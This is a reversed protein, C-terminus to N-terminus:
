RQLKSWANPGLTGARHAALTEEFAADAEAMYADITTDNHFIRDAMPARERWDTASALRQEAEARTLGRNAVMREIATEDECVVLWATDCRAMYGRELLLVAEYVAVQDDALDRKWGEIMGNFFALIDGMATRLADMREQNGFVKAGLIKRDIVGDAGVVEEGFEAVVRTFGETGPAYLRHAEKDADVHMAGYKEVLRASLLSKGAAISGTIGIILPPVPPNYHDRRAAALVCLLGALQRGESTENSRDQASDSM